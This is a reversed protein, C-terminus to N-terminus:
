KIIKTNSLKQETDRHFVALSDKDWRPMSVSGLTDYVEATPILHYQKRGQWIGKHVYIPIYGIDVIKKTAASISVEAMIGGNSGRWRQNSLMNGLSYFVPVERGDAARLVEYEQVVHPHSGIVLDFGKDALWQAMRRQSESSHKKYEVGWHICMVKLDTSREMEELDSVIQATDIRNVINPGAVTLGNTGYTCNMFAVVLSDYDTYFAKYLPYRCSRAEQTLYAGAYDVGQKELTKVTRELGERGRDAIHNNALLFLDFGTRALAMLYEDPASFRPFGTYPEGALPAELNVAAYDARKVYPEVLAFCPSYDLGTDTKAWNVQVVHSMADGAFLLRLTDQGRSASAMLLMLSILLCRHRM